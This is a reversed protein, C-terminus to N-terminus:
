PRVALHRDTCMRGPNSSQRRRCTCCRRLGQFRVRLCMRRSRHASRPVTNTYTAMSIEKSDNKVKIKAHRTQWALFIGFILQLGKYCYIGITFHTQKDCTCRIVQKINIVEAFHSVETTVNFVDEKFPSLKTWAGLIIVDGMIFM